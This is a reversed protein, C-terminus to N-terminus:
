AFRYALALGFQDTTPRYNTTILGNAYSRSPTSQYNTHIYEGRLSLNDVLTTQLGIGLQLGNLEHNHSALGQLSEEFKSRVYGVRAYLLSNDTIWYGPLASIGYSNKLKLSLNGTTPLNTKHELSSLSGFVEGGLYAGNCFTYGYGTFLNGGVGTGSADSEVLTTGSTSIKTDFDATDRTLGVGAYFAGNGPNSAAMTPTAIIAAPAAILSILLIKKFM